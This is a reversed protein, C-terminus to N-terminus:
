NLLPERHTHVIDIWIQPLLFLKNVQADDSVFNTLYLYFSGNM